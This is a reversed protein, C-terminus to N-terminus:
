FKLLKFKGGVSVLPSVNVWAFEPADAFTKLTVTTVSRNLGTNRLCYSIWTSPTVPVKLKVSLNVPLMPPSTSITGTFLGTIPVNICGLAIPIGFSVVVLGLRVTNSKHSPYM